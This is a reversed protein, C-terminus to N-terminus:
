SINSRTTYCYWRVMALCCRPVGPHTPFPTTARFVPLAFTEVAAKGEDFGSSTFELTALCFDLRVWRIIQNIVRPRTTVFPSLSLSLSFTHTHSLSFFTAFPLLPLFSLFFSSFIFPLFFPLFLGTGLRRHLKNYHGDNKLLPSACLEYAFKRRALYTGFGEEAEEFQILEADEGTWIGSSRVHFM